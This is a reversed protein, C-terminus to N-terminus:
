QKFRSAAQELAPGIAQIMSDLELFAQRAVAPSLTDNADVFGYVQSPTVYATDTGSPDDRQQIMANSIRRATAYSQSLMEM